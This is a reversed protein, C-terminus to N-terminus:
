YYDKKPLTILLEILALLVHDLNKKRDINGQNKQHANQIINFIGWLVNKYVVFFKQPLLKSDIKGFFILLVLLNTISDFKFNSLVISQPNFNVNWFKQLHRKLLGFDLFM